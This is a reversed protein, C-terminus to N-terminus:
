VDYHFKVQVYRKNALDDADEHIIKGGMHKYFEISATNYKNCSVLMRNYGNSKVDHLAVELLKKGYGKNQYDKLIYLMGLEQEYDRFPHYPTGITMFGVISKEDNVLVYVSDTPNNIIKVLTDEEHEYNFNDILEDDYIGRYTTDWVKQKVIAINKVDALNAKRIEM